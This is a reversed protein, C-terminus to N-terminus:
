KEMAFLVSFPCMILISYSRTKEGHRLLNSLGLVVIPEFDASLPKIEEYNKIM